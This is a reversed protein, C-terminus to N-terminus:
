MKMCEAIKTKDKKKNRDKLIYLIWDIAALYFKYKYYCHGNEIYSCPHPHIIYNKFITWWIVIEAFYIEFSGTIKCFLPFLLVPTPLKFFSLLQCLM